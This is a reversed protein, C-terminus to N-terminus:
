AGSYTSYHSCLFRLLEISFVRGLYTNGVLVIIVPSISYITAMTPFVSSPIILILWLTVM